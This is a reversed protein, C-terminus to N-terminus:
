IGDHFSSSPFRPPHKHFVLVSSKSLHSKKEKKKRKRRQHDEAGDRRCAAIEGYHHELEEDQHQLLHPAVLGEQPSRSLMFQLDARSGAAAAAEAQWMDVDRPLREM